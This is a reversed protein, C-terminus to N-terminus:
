VCRGPEVPRCMRVNGMGLLAITAAPETPHFLRQNRALTLLRGVSALARRTAPTADRALGSREVIRLKAIDDMGTSM